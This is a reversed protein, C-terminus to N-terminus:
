TVAPLSGLLAGSLQDRHRAIEEANAERVGTAMMHSRHSDQFVGTVILGTPHTGVGDFRFFDAAVPEQGEKRQIVMLKGAHAREYARAPNITKEAPPATSSLTM